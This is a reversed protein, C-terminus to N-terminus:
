WSTLILGLPFTDSLMRLPWVSSIKKANIPPIVKM